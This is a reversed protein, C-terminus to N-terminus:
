RLPDSGMKALTPMVGAVDELLAAIRGMQREPDCLQKARAPGGRGLRDRESRNGILRALVAALAPPNDPPVLAGCSEDVIELAGGLASTVVPLGAALAEVLAIGFPEPQLNPQCFIDAAGLLAPVDRREGLFTVHENLDLRNVDALLSEEHRLESERQAGGVLWCAWGPQQKLEALAEILVAHGKWFEMRSVQVIVIGGNLARPGTHEPRPVPYYIVEVRQRCRPLVSATFHSNCVYCDPEVRAALKELWHQGSQAMHIWSVLPFGLRKIVPGFITLPWAQHCVVVDFPQNEILVALSRRARWVSDPRRLRVAGLIHVPVGESRLRQAIEGEFCLAVSTEMAPALHRCRALTLLFIEVGGFLNGSHVHLVRM